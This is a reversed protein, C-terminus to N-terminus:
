EEGAESEEDDGCDCSIFQGNCRPCEEVDCDMVHYQGKVVGCDGCAHDDAGYDDSESGYPIRTFTEGEILVEPMTQAEEIKAPWWDVMKIGNYVIHNQEDSM